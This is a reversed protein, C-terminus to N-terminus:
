GNSLIVFIAAMERSDIIHVQLLFRVGSLKPCDVVKVHQGGDQIDAM